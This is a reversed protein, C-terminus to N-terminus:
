KNKENIKQFGDRMEEMIMKEEKERREKREEKTENKLFDKNKPRKSM